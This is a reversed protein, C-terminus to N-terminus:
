LLEKYSTIYKDAINILDNKQYESSKDNVAIVKMNGLKAGKVAELIDEFVICEEPSVNLKKASLLYVDPHSKGNSVESTTTISDFYTNIGTGELAAQLLFPSNSTAIGTKIKNAKLYELFEIVGDKLTVDNLYHNYAM